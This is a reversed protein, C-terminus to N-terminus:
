ILFGQDELLKRALAITIRRGEALSARDLATVLARIAAPTREMRPVLYDIVDAGLDVQRDSFQKILLASVLEDDPAAIGAAPVSLLRSRLDALGINWQAPAQAATLLLFGGQEKIRNYLHFLAEEQAAVGATKGADDILFNKDTNEPRPGALDTIELAQAGSRQQWVHALHTKGSGSPGYLILCHAPWDPWREIWAAADRNSAAVMFDDAAMAEAHPLPLPYQRMM